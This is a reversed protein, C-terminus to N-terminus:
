CAAGAVLLREPPAGSLDRLPAFIDVSFPGDENPMLQAEFGAAMQSQRGQQVLRKFDDHTAKDVVIRPFEAIRRELDYAKILAPGFVIKDSHHLEGKAIGGQTLIGNALLDFALNYVVYLLHELGSDSASASLLICDSFSQAKFDAGFLRDYELPETRGSIRNLIRVLEAAQAPARVSNRVIEGFGLIDLFVVYRESYVTSSTEDQESV